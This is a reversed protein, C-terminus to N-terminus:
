KDSTRNTHPDLLDRMGDGLMNFALALVLIAIGPFATMWWSNYIFMKGDILLNGLSPAPAPVGAGLFSLAAEVIIAEVFIFSTQVVLLSISNLAIHGWLIRTHSAGLAKMAEIYTQERVVLANSRIVRAVHPTIVMILCFILNSISPGLMAMIALALLIGPFAMLGDSIRMFLHDLWRYYSAYLGVIL